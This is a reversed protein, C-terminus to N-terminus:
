KEDLIGFLPTNGTDVEPADKYEQMEKDENRTRFWMKGIGFVGLGGKCHVGRKPDKSVFFSKQSYTLVFDEHRKIEKESIEEFLRSM